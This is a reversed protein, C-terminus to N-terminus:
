RPPEADTSPQPAPCLPKGTEPDISARVPAGTKPDSATGVTEALCRDASMQPLSIRPNSSPARPTTGSVESAQPPPGAPPQVTQAVANACVLLASSVAVTMAFLSVATM